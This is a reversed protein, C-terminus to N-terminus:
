RTWASSGNPQRFVALIWREVVQVGAEVKPKDKPKRPRAPMIAAGYHTAMEPYTRQPHTRLPRCPKVGAKLNDPVILEPVGGFNSHVCMVALSHSWNRRPSRRQLHTVAPALCLWSSRHRCSKVRRATLTRYQPGQTIWSCRRVPVTSVVCPSICHRRGGATANASSATSTATAANPRISRGSFNCRSAKRATNRTYTVGTQSPIIRPADRPAHFCCRRWNSTTSTLLDLPWTLGVESARTLIRSVTDRSVNISRAIARESLKAEYHLRLVEKIKRM